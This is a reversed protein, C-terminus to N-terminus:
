IWVIPSIFENWLKFLSIRCIPQYFNALTPMFSKLTRSCRCRRSCFLSRVNPSAPADQIVCAYNIKNVNALSQVVLSSKGCFSILKLKKCNTTLEVVLDDTIVDDFRELKLYELNSLATIAHLSADSIASDLLRLHLRNLGKAHNSITQLIEETLGNECNVDYCICRLDKLNTTRQIFQFNSIEFADDYLQYIYSFHWICWGFESHVTSSEVPLRYLVFGVKRDFRAVISPLRLSSHQHPHRM